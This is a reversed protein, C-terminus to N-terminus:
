KEVGSFTSPSSLTTVPASGIRFFKKVNSISFLRM